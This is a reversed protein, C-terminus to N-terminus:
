YLLFSFFFLTFNIELFLIFIFLYKLKSKLSKKRKGEKKRKKGGELYITIRKRRGFFITIRKSGYLTIDSGEQSKSTGYGFDHFTHGNQLM